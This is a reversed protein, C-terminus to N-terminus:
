LEDLKNFDIKTIKGCEVNFIYSSKIDRRLESGIETSTIFLQVDDIENLLVRQRDLDLESLVDDLILVPSELLIEKALRVEALKLSLAITRQQGQSGYKRANKGNIYFEIDDRHPGVSSSGIIKDRERYAYLMSVMEEVNRPTCTECYKITLNERDNSIHRQIESAKSSLVDVFNRRYKIIELGNVALQHDFIDLMEEISSDDNKDDSKLLSNKQKLADNYQKLRESYGPRLQSLEKNIFSRRKEPSDKIIRLDEPSFVIVVLNNLLDTTRTILKGDRKIMKKGQRNIMLKLNIDFDAREIDANISCSDKGLMIAEAITSTRFSRAFSCLYIAEVLNTKGQANDGLIINRSDKFEIDLNEYNRFNTLSINKVKM